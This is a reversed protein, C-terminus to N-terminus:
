DAVSEEMKFDYREVVDEHDVEDGNEKKKWWAGSRWERNQETKWWEFEVSMVKMDSMDTSHLHTKLYFFLFKM